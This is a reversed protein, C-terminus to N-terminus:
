QGKRRMDVHLGIGMVSTALKILWLGVTQRIKWAPLGTLRVNLTIRKTLDSMPVNVDQTTKM